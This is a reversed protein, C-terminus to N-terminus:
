DAIPLTCIRFSRCDAAYVLAAHYRARDEMRAFLVRPANNRPTIDCIEHLMSHYTISVHKSTVEAAFTNVKPFRDNLQTICCSSIRREDQNDFCKGM